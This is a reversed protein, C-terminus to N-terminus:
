EDAYTSQMCTDHSSLPHGPITPECTTREFLRTAPPTNEKSVTDVERRSGIFSGVAELDVEVGIFSQAFAGTLKDRTEVHWTAM